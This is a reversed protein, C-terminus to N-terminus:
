SAFTRPDTIEGTLASSAVTAPSALWISANRNGMRGLFNRNATSFINAGDDPVGQHSGVCPGCGPTTVMFGAALLIALTGEATAEELVRRSAPTIIGIVGRGIRRASVIRAAARLDELSGNACTGILAQHIPTGIVEEVPVVKTPSHPLAVRPSITSLNVTIRETFAAYEDPFVRHPGPELGRVTFWEDLISDRPMLVCKAGAEALVNCLTMRADVSLSSLGEGKCDISLYAAGSGGLRGLLELAVDMASVGPMLAGAFEIYMSEPVKLWLRGWAMAVALDTSGVGISVANFAGYTVTHSDAGIILAGPRVIGEEALIRLSNGEGEEFLRIGHRDAFGRIAGHMRSVEASPSPCYHDFVFFVREQEAVRADRIAAFSELALPLSGDNGMMTDVRALVVDGAGAGLIKEASTRGRENQEHQHPNRDM